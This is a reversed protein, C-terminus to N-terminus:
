YVRVQLSIYNHAFIVQFTGVLECIQMPVDPGPKQALLCYNHFGSKWYFTIINLLIVSASWQVSFNVVELVFPKLLSINWEGIEEFYLKLIKFLIERVASM